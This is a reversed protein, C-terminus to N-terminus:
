ILIRSRWPLGGATNRRTCTCDEGEREELTMETM